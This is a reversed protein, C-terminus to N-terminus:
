KREEWYEEPYDGVLDDFIINKSKWEQVVLRVIVCTKPMVGGRAATLVIIYFKKM